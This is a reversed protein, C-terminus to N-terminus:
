AAAPIERKALQDPFKATVEVLDATAWYATYSIPTGIEIVMLWRASCSNFRRRTAPLTNQPCTRTASVWRGLVLGATPRSGM